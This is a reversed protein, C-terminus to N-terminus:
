GGSTPSADIAACNAFKRERPDWECCGRKANVVINGSFILQSELVAYEEIFYLDEFVQEKGTEDKRCCRDRDCSEISRRKEHIYGWM